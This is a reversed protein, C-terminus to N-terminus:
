REPREMQWAREFLLSHIDIKEKLKRRAMARQKAPRQEEPFHTVLEDFHADFSGKRVSRRHPM